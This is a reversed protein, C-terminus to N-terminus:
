KAFLVRGRIAAGRITDDANAVDMSKESGRVLRSRGGVQSKPRRITNQRSGDRSRHVHNPRRGPRREEPCSGRCRGRGPRKAPRWRRCGPVGTADGSRGRVVGM